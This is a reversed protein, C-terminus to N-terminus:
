AVSGSFEISFEVALQPRISESSLLYETPSRLKLEVSLRKNLQDPTLKVKFYRPRALDAVPGECILQGDLWVTYTMPVTQWQDSEPHM